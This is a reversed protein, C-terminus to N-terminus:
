IPTCMRAADARKSDVEAIAVVDVWEAAARMNGMGMGGAGIMGLRFRDSKAKSDDALTRPQSFFYPVFAAAASSQLLFDRRKRITRSM